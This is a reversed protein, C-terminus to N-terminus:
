SQPKVKNEPKTGLERLEKKIQAIREYHAQLESMLAIAKGHMIQSELYSETM